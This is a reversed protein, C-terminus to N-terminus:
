RRSEQAITGESVALRTLSRFGPPIDSLRPVALLTQGAAASAVVDVIRRSRELDLEAFPDDMLFVPSVGIRERYTAAELVRLAIAATRLQGASRFQRTDRGDLTVALIDRHPGVHTTGRRMDLQRKQELASAMADVGSGEGITSAYALAGTAREGMAAGLTAFTESAHRVWARREAIIRAGAVALAPEWAAASDADNRGRRVGALLVSNRRVLASRYRHLARLYPRSTLSLLMDLYRRRHAPEGSVLAVDAPSFLVGPLAGVADVLREIAVGDLRILKRRTQREYGVSIERALPSGDVSARVHFAESGFRVADV